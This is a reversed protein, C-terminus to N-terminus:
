HKVHTMKYSGITVQSISLLMMQVECVFQWLSTVQQFGCLYSQFGPLRTGRGGNKVM